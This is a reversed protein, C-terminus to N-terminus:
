WYLSVPSIPGWEVQLHLSVATQTFRLFVFKFFLFVCNVKMLSRSLQRFHAYWMEKEFLHTKREIIPNLYNPQFKIWSLLYYLKSYAAYKLDIYIQSCTDTDSQFTHMRKTTWFLFLSGMSRNLYWFFFFFSIYFRCQFSHRQELFPRRSNLIELDSFMKGKMTKKICWIFM